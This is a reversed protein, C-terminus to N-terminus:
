QKILKKYIEEYQNLIVNWDYKSEALTRSYKGALKIQSLDNTLLAIKEAMAEYDGQDVLYGNRGEEIVESFGGVKSSIIPLGAACAELATTAFGEDKSMNLYVHANEYENHLDINEVFGVFKVKDQIGLEVALKKLASEEPGVGVIRLEFKKKLMECKANQKESNAILSARHAFQSFSKLILDFGKREILYGVALFKITGDFKQEFPIYKFRELLVGPPIIKIKNEPIDLSKIFEKSDKNTAIIISARQMTKVSLFRLPRALLKILKQGLDELQSQNLTKERYVRLKDKRYEEYRVVPKFVPGIVFPKRTLLGFLNYTRGPWFPLVHHILDPRYKLSLSFSAVSYKINFILSFFVGFDLKKNKELEVIRYPKENLVEKFGTVVISDPYKQAIGDGVSFAVLPDSGGKKEDFQQFCPSLLIRM